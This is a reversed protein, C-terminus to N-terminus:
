DISRFWNFFPIPFKQIQDDAYLGGFGFQFSNKESTAFRLGPILIAVTYKNDLYIFSDFVFSVKKAIPTMGAISMLPASRHEKNYGILGYGGSLTINSQRNGYTLSGYGLVGYKDLGAWGLTGLLAGIGININEAINISYKASGIIPTAGWTTMIGLSFNDSVAFHAEASIPSLLLYDDGKKIPLGNPTIFYRTSYANIGYTTATNSYVEISKIEYKPILIKGLNKTEILVGKEDNALIVGIYIAGDNKTIKSEVPNDQATLPVFSITNIAFLIIISFLYKFGISKIKKM